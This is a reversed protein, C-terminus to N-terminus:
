EVQLFWVFVFVFLVIRVSSNSYNSYESWRQLTSRFSKSSTVFLFIYSFASGLNDRVSTVSVSSSQSSSAQKSSMCQKVYQRTREIRTKTVVNQNHKAAGMNAILGGRSTLPIKPKESNSKSPM